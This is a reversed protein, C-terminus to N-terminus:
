VLQAISYIKVFTCKVNYKFWATSTFQLTSVSNCLVSAVRVPVPAATPPTPRFFIQALAQAPAQPLSSACCKFQVQVSGPCQRWPQSSSSPTSRPCALPPVQPSALCDSFNRSLAPFWFADSKPSFDATCLAWPCRLMAPSSSWSSTLKCTSPWPRRLPRHQMRPDLVPVSPAVRVVLICPLQAHWCPVALRPRWPTAPLTSPTSSPLPASSSPTTAASRLDHRARSLPLRARASACIFRPHRRPAAAGSDSFPVAPEVL